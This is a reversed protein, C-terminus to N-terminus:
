PQNQFEYTAEGQSTIIKLLHMDSFVPLIFIRTLDEVPRPPDGALFVPQFSQEYLLRDERDSIQILADGPQTVTLRGNEALTTQLIEPPATRHLTVRVIWVGSLTEFPQPTILPTDTPYATPLPISTAPPRPSVTSLLTSSLPHAWVPQQFLYGLVLAVLVGLFIQAQFTLRPIM